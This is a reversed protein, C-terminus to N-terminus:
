KNGTYFLAFRLSGDSGYILHDAREIPLTDNPVAVLLASPRDFDTITVKNVFVYRNLVGGQYWFPDPKKVFLAYIYPQGYTGDVIINAVEPRGNKGKEYDKAITLAQLYGDQFDSASEAAFTVFYYNLFSIFFFVELCILIGFITNKLIAAMAPEVQNIFFNNLHEIGLLTLLIFGPLAFLARNAHPVEYSLSAPILGIVAIGIGFLYPKKQQLHRRVKPFFYGFLGVIALAYTVPLLVSWAGPGHRLTLTKGYIMFGPELHLLFNKLFVEIMKYVPIADFIFLVGARQGANGSITDTILPLLLVILILFSSCLYPFFTKKFEKFNCIIILIFLLPVVIKASHYAYVGLAFALASGNLILWKYGTKIASSQKLFFLLLTLGGLVFFFSVGAEFAIRSFHIHWPSAALLATGLLALKESLSHEAFLIKLFFYFVIVSGIGLLAFPLRVAWPNMGFFYTFFGNLYIATAAKYDGFSKFSVPLKVLWEDRRTTFITFGNYGTAAEDWTLGHPITGLAYLRVFSAICIIGALVFHSTRLM